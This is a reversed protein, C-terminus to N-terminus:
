QIWIGRKNKWFIKKCQIPAVIIGNVNSIISAIFVCCVGWNFHSIFLWCLLIFLFPTIASLFYQIRVAGIGNLLNVYISGFLFSLTYILCWFSMKFPIMVIDKGIWLDYAYPSAFLMIIGILCFVLLAKEYRVVVNKIWAFDGTTYADTAASWFPSLLIVFGMTLINFYKYTINYSTVEDMGFNRAIIYNATQYQILAAIQIIFFKFSLNFLDKFYTIKAFRISPAYKKYETNFLFINAFLLIVVPAITLGIGLKILSGQTTKTLIFIILLAFLQGLVDILSSKAPQQDATLMSNLIRLVFQICFYSFVIIVLINIDNNISNKLNLIKNWDLYQNFLIFLVWLSSFIVLLAVYTTSVYSKALNYDKKAVAQTFKNRMGNSLGIDFFSFWAVISSVTLWIGYDTKDVYKITIPVLLLSTAIGVLKILINFLINKKAKNSRSHTGNFFNQYKSNIYHFYKNLKYKILLPKM